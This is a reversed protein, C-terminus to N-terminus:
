HRPSKKGGKSTRRGGAAHSLLMRLAELPPTAAFFKDSRKDAFEKAACRSRVVPRKLDGWNVDVWNPQLPKKGTNKWCEAVLVIDWVKRENMFALEEARAEATLDAPLEEHTIDELYRQSGHKQLCEQEDQVRVYEEDPAVEEGMGNDTQEADRGVSYVTCGPDLDRRLSDCLTHEERRRQAKIRRLM